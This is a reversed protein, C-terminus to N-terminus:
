PEVYRLTIWRDIGIILTNYLLLSTQSGIIKQLIPVEPYCRHSRADRPNSGGIVDALSLVGGNSNATGRVDIHYYRRLLQHSTQFLNTPQGPSSKEGYMMLVHSRVSEPYGCSFM